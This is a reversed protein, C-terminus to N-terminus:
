LYGYGGNESTSGEPRNLVIRFSGDRKMGVTVYTTAYLGYNHPGAGHFNGSVSRHAQPWALSVTSCKRNRQVRQSWYLSIISRCVVVFIPLRDYKKPPFAAESREDHFGHKAATRAV